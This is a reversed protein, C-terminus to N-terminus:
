QRYGASILMGFIAHMEFKSCLTRQSANNTATPDHIRAM